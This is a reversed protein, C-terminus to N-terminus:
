NLTTVFWHNNLYNPQLLTKYTSILTRKMKILNHGLKFKVEMNVLKIKANILM